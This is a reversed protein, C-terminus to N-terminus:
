GATEEGVPDALHDWDRVVGCEPGRDCGTKGLPGQSRCRGSEIAIARAIPIYLIPVCRKHGIHVRAKTKRAFPTKLPSM